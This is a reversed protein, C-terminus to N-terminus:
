LFFILGSAESFLITFMPFIVTTTAMIRATIIAGSNPMSLFPPKWYIWSYVPKTDGPMKAM